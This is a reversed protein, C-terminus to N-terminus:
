TCSVIVNSGMALVSTPLSTLESGGGGGSGGRMRKGSAKGRGGAPTNAGLSLSSSLVSASHLIRDAAASGGSGPPDEMWKDQSRRRANMFFNGVTSLELGLQQSITVQMEKSPRKTEKFIAQLTRRQLDTFVLRPKKTGNTPTSKSGNGGGGGGNMMHHEGNMSSSSRGMSSSASTSTSSSSVIVPHHVSMALHHQMQSPHTLHQQQQQQQQHHASLSHLSPHNIMMGSPPPPPPPPSLSNGNGNGMGGPSGHSSGGM